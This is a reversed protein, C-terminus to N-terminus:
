VRYEGGRLKIFEARAAADLGLAVFIPYNGGNMYARTSAQMKERVEPHAALFAEGAAAPDNLAALAKADASQPTESAAQTAARIRALREADTVQKLLATRETQAAALSATAARTRQTERIAITATAFAAVIAAITVATKAISMLALIGSTTAATTALTTAAGALIAGTITTALGAPAAAAAEATMLASLAAATSTVGRRAYLVRLKDLARSVRMCAATENTKMRSGIEAYDRGEFFRLLVAERDKPALADLAEDLVERMHQRADTATATAPTNLLENMAAAEHERERRLRADRMATRAIHRTATHLWGTINAHRALAPAKQSATLFVTQTIDGALHANGAARRLASGYVFGIRRKVFAAFARESRDAAFRRLLESDDPLGDTMTQKHTYRAAPNFGLM